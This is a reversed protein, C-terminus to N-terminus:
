GIGYIEFMSIFFDHVQDVMQTDFCNNVSQNILPSLIKALKRLLNHYNINKTNERPSTSVFIPVCCPCAWSNSERLNFYSDNSMSINCRNKHFFNFCYSCQLTGIKWRDEEKINWNNAEGELSEKFIVCITVDNVTITYLVDVSSQGCLHCDPGLADEDDWYYGCLLESIADNVDPDM